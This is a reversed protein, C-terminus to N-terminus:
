KAPKDTSVCRIPMAVNVENEGGKRGLMIDYNDSVTYANKFGRVSSQEGEGTRENLAASWFYGASKLYLEVKGATRAAADAGQIRIYGTRAILLKKYLAKAAEFEAETQGTMSDYDAWAATTIKKAEEMTPVRWGKPCPSKVTWDSFGEGTAKWEKDYNSSTVIFIDKGKDDKETTIKDILVPANKGWQYFYGISAANPKNSNGNYAETAGINRDIMYFGLEAKTDLVKFDSWEVMPPDVTPENKEDDDSCSVTFLAITALLLWEKKM